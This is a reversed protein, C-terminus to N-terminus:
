RSLFMLASVVLLSVWMMKYGTERQEMSDSVLPALLDPFANSIAIFVRIAMGFVNTFVLLLFADYNHRSICTNLWTCHHDIGPVIKKCTSCFRPPTVFRL